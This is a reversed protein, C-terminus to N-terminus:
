AIDHIGRYQDRTHIVTGHNCFEVAIHHGEGFHINCGCARNQKIKVAVRRDAINVAGVKHAACELSHDHIGSGVPLIHQTDAMFAYTQSLDAIVVVGHEVAASGDARSCKVTAGELHSKVFASIGRLFRHSCQKMLDRIVVLIRQVGGLAVARDPELQIVAVATGVAAHRDALVIIHGHRDVAHVIRRHDMLNVAVANNVGFSLGGCERDNVHANRSGSGGRIHHVRVAGIEVAALERNLNNVCGVRAYPIHRAFIHETDFGSCSGRSFDADIVILDDEVAATLHARAFEVRCATNQIDLQEFSRIRNCHGFQNLADGIEVRIRQIRGRSLPGHTVREKVSVQVLAFVSIGGYKYPADVARRLNFIQCIIRGDKNLLIEMLSGFEAAGCHQNILIGRAHVARSIHGINVAQIEVAAFQDRFNVGAEMGRIVPEADLM